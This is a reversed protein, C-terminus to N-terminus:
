PRYKSRALIKQADKENMLQALTANENNKMYSRVIQLGVWMAIRPPCEKSIVGTFPGDSTLEQITKMNTEYLRNKEAFYSWLNKEYKKCYDMQEKSFCM